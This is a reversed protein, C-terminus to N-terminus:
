GTLGIVAAFRGTTNAQRYSYLLHTNCRTCLNSWEIRSPRVGKEVLQDHTIQWFNFRDKEDKYKRFHAPIETEHNIFEACCPGLSPGIGCVLASPNTGFRTELEDVCRGVIGGISGRWGAHINAVAKKEPDHLMVSQCDAVQITLMQVPRCTLAADAEPCIAAKMAGPANATNHADEMAIVQTGHVQSLFFLKGNEMCDTISKRNQEVAGPDDGGNKGVNLGAFPGSSLGGCRTFIGHVVGRCAALNGFTWYLLNNKCNLHM